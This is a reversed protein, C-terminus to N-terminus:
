AMPGRIEPNLRDSRVSPAIIIFFGPAGTFKVVPPVFSSRVGLSRFPISGHDRLMRM